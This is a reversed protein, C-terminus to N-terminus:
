SKEEPLGSPMDTYLFLLLLMTKLCTSGQYCYVDKMESVTLLIISVVQSYMM